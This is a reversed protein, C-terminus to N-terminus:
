YTYLNGANAVSVGAPTTVVVHIAGAAHAPAVATIQTASVFTVTSSATAGFKVTAGPVFGTGTITVTNGGATPGANPSLSTVTPAGYAYLNFKTAASAGAPTTVVVHVAGAAHAPAVAKLQTASVFTV